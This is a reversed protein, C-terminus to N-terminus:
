EFLSRLLEKNMGVEPCALDEADVDEVGSCEAQHGTRQEKAVPMAVKVFPHPPSRYSHYMTLTPNFVFAATAVQSTALVGGIVFLTWLWLTHQM